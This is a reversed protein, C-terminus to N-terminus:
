ITGTEIRIKEEEEKSIDTWILDLYKLNPFIDKLKTSGLDLNTYSNGNLTLKELGKFVALHKLDHPDSLRNYSLDLTKLSTNEM